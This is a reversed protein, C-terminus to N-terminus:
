GGMSSVTTSWPSTSGSGESPALLPVDHCSSVAAEVSGLAEQRGGRMGRGRSGM